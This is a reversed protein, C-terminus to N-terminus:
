WRATAFRISPRSSCSSRGNWDLVLTVLDELTLLGTRGPQRRGALQIGRGYDLERLQALTMESVLGTGTSARDLSRDHVCVLPRGQDATRRM